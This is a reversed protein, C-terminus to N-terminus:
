GVYVSQVFKTLSYAFLWHDAISLLKLSIYNALINFCFLSFFLLEGKTPKASRYHSILWQSFFYLANAWQLIQPYCSINNLVAVPGCAVSLSGFKVSDIHNLKCHTFLM